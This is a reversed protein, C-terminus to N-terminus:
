RRLAKAEFGSPVAAGRKLHSKLIRIKEYDAEEWKHSGNAPVGIFGNKSISLFDEANLRLLSKMGEPSLDFTKQVAASLQKDSYPSGRATVIVSEPETAGIAYTIKVEADEAFGNVLQIAILRASLLCSVDTKTIDRGVLLGGGYTRSSGSVYLSDMRGNVGTDAMTGGVSFDGAGNVVIRTSKSILGLAKGALSLLSDNACFVLEKIKKRFKGIDIGPSHQAAVVIDSAAKPGFPFSKERGCFGVEVQAKGDPQLGDIWGFAFAEDLLRNIELALAHSANLHNSTQNSAYAISITADGAGQKGKRKIGAAIDPSQRNFSSIVLIDKPDFFNQAGYGAQVFSYRAAQEMKELYAECKASTEVQGCMFVVPSPNYSAASNGKEDKILIPGFHATVQIDFRASPDLELLWAGAASAISDALRDPHGKRKFEAPVYILQDKPKPKRM